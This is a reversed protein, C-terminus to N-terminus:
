SPSTLGTAPFSSTYRRRKFVTWVAITALLVYTSTLIKLVLVQRFTMSVSATSSFPDKRSSPSKAMGPTFEVPLSTLTAKMSGAPLTV